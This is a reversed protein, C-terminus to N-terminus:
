FRLLISLVILFASFLGSLAMMFNYDFDTLGFSNSVVFKIKDETMPISTCLNLTTNYYFKDHTYSLKEFDLDYFPKSVYYDTGHFMIDLKRTSSNYKWTKVCQGGYYSDATLYLSVSILLLLIKKM